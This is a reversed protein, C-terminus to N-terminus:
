KLFSKSPVISFVKHGDDKDTPNDFGAAVVEVDVINEAYESYFTGSFSEGVKLSVGDQTWAYYITEQIGPTVLDSDRNVAIHLKIKCDGLDISGANTLKFDISPPTTTNDFTPTAPNDDTDLTFELVCDPPTGVVICGTLGLSLVVSIMLLISIRKVGM